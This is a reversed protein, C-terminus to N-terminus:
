LTQCNTSTSTRAIIRHTLLSEEIIWVSGPSLQSVKSNAVQTTRSQLRNCHSWPALSPSGTQSNANHQRPKEGPSKRVIDSAFVVSPHKSTVDHAFTWTILAEVLDSRCVLMAQSALQMTLTPSAAHRQLRQPRTHGFYTSTADPEGTHTMLSGNRQM